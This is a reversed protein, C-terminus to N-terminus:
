NEKKFMSNIYQNYKEVIFQRKKKLSNTLEQGISFQAPIITFNSIREFPHFDRSDNVLHKIQEKILEIVKANSVAEELTKFDEKWDGLLARLKEEELVILAGLAKRDDGVVVAHSIYECEEIREEIPTPEVNEGGLLVITDKARGAIILDGRMSLTGVDGTNLWGDDDLIARTAEPNNYYGKMVQPGKVHIIGKMGPEVENGESDVIKITTLEFPIGATYLHNREFRRGTIGPSCETMGYANILTVGAANFFNDIYKPLTGGGTFAGRMRGGVAQRVPNFIMASFLAPLFLLSAIVFSYVYNLFSVSTPRESLVTDHFTLVHFCQLFKQRILLALYFMAKKVPSEKKVKDIIKSYVSQWIRPVACMVTPGAERLDNGFNKVDTYFNETGAAICIYEFIREFVHWSPLISLARERSFSKMHLLPGIHEVNHMFNGHSLMVGKPNGTTGSTYIITVTDDPDMAEEAIDESESYIEDFCRFNEHKNIFMINEDPIIGDTIGALNKNELIAFECDAHKLIFMLEKRPSSTGRPVDIAGLYIIAMDLIIWEFRNDSFLAVKTGKKVGMKKLYSATKRILSWLETFTITKLVNESERYTLAPQDTFQEASFKTMRTLTGAQIIHREM